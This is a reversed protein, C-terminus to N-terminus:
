SGGMDYTKRILVRLMRCVEDLKGQVKKTDRWFGRSESFKVYDLLEEASGRALNYFRAKDRPQRRGFGEAINAPISLAAAEMQGILRYYRGAPFGELADFVLDRVEAARQWVILQKFSTSGM